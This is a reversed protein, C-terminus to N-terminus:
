GVAVGITAASRTKYDSSIHFSRSNFILRHIHQIRYVACTPLQVLNCAGFQLVCQLLNHAWIAQVLSAVEDVSM